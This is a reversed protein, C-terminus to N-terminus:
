MMAAISSFWGYFTTVELAQKERFHRTSLMM